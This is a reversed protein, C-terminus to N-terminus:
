KNKKTEYDSWDFHIGLSKAKQEISCLGVKKRRENVKLIDKIEHFTIPDDSYQTGYIQPYGNFMLMRDEMKAMLSDELLDLKAMEKFKPYYYSMKRTGGHQIVYWISEIDEKSHPWNCNDLLSVITDRNVKDIEQINDLIGKRVKQDRDLARRLIQKSSDCNIQVYTIDSFPDHQLERIRIEYFINEDNVEFLRVQDIDGSKNKYFYRIVKGENLLQRLSDTMPSGFQDTYTLNFFNIQKNKVLEIADQESVKEYENNLSCGTWLFIIVTAVIILDIKM